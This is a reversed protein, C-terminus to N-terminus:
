LLYDFHRYNHLFLTSHTKFEYFFQWSRLFDAILIREISFKLRELLFAISLNAVNEGSFGIFEESDDSWTRCIVFAPM